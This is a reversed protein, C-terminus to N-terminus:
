LYRLDPPYHFVLIEKVKAQTAMKMGMAIANNVNKGQAGVMEFGMKTGRKAANVVITNHDAALQTNYKLANNKVGFRGGLQQIGYEVVPGVYGAAAKQGSIALWLTQTPFALKAETVFRKYAMVMNPDNKKGWGADAHMEESTGKGGVLGRTGGTIHVHQCLQHNKYREGLKEYYSAVYDINAQVWPLPASNLKENSKLSDLLWKATLDGSMPLLSFPKNCKEMRGVCRDIFSFDWRTKTPRIWDGRFRIAMGEIKSHNIDNTGIERGDGPQLIYDM